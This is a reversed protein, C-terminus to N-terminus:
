EKALRETLVDIFDAVSKATAGSPCVSTTGTCSNIAAKALDIAIARAEENTM